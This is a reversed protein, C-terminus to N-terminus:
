DSLLPFGYILFSSDCENECDITSLLNILGALKMTLM